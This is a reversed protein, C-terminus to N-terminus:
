CKVCRRLLFNTPMTPKLGSYKGDGRSFISVAKKLIDRELQTEKLEKELRKIQKQEESLGATPSKSLSKCSQRWKTIRGVDIGLEQAAEQVSGKAYSLEVAM